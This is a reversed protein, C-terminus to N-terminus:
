CLKCPPPGGGFIYNILYVVDAINVLTNCDVDGANVPDPAPGGGFVYSILYVADAVNTAGSGDADGAVFNCVTFSWIDSWTKIDCATVGQVRWYHTQMDTLSGVIYSNGAVVLSVEPLIFTSDDDIQLQYSTASDAIDWSLEVPTEVQAANLPADLTPKGIKSPIQGIWTRWGGGTPGAYEHYVWVLNQDVPDAAIGGYDGWRTPSSGSRHGDGQRLLKSAPDNLFDEIYHIGIYEETSSRSFCTYIRNLPDPYIAPFYYYIGDAGFVADLTATSTLTDVGLMRIASVTGSGWNFAQSFSTYVMGNRYVVEQTMPGLLSITPPGGQQVGDPPSSYSSVSVQPRLQVVPSGLPDTIKWYTTYNAGYWINSLLFEGDADSYSVAPKVTFASTWNHYRLNWIDHWTLAGGAYLSDKDLIRVKVYKYGGGLQWMNATLYIAQDYDFGLGPYDPWTNAPVDGNVAADLNYNYWDGMADASKSASVLFSSKSVDNTCLFLIVFHGANPDYVVKPDFIFYSPPPPSTNQFWYDATSQLLKEGTYKDFIAISSNVVVVVHDPGVAAHPDPPNWGTNTVGSFSRCPEFLSRATEAAASRDLIHHPNNPDYQGVVLKALEEAAPEYPDKHYKRQPKHSSIPHPVSNIYKPSVITATASVASRAVQYTAPQEEAQLAVATVLLAMIVFYILHLKNSTMTLCREFSYKYKKSGEAFDCPVYAVM